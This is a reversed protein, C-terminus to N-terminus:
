EKSKGRKSIFGVFLAGIVVTLAIYRFDMTCFHPYKFCFSVYSIIQTATFIIMAAFEAISFTNNEKFLDPAKIGKVCKIIMIVAGVCAAVCFLLALIFAVVSLAYTFPEDAGIYYEGYLSSKFAGLPINYEFYEFGYRAALRETARAPYVGNEFLSSFDFLREGVSRFGIYQNSKESLAPIYLPDSGYVFFNRLQWWLALPICVAGFAAFQGFILLKRKSLIFRILFLFAIAVAVTGASLKAMMAFGVSLAVFLINKFTPERYWKIATYLSLLMLTLSLVDNNISGSLFIFTPHFAVLAVPLFAKKGKLGFLKFLKVSIFMILTSCILSLIQLNERATELTAGFSLQIKMWLAGLFHWLPPHYFQWRSDTVDFDPLFFQFFGSSGIDEASTSGNMLYLMYEFHGQSGTVDHQRINWDTNIIYFLRLLFGALLILFIINRDTFCKKRLNKLFDM